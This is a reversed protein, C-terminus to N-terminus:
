LWEQVAGGFFARRGRHRTVERRGPAFHFTDSCAERLVSYPFETGHRNHQVSALSLRCFEGKSENPLPWNPRKRLPATPELLDHLLQTPEAVLRGHRVSVAGTNTRQKRSSAVPILVDRSKHVVM